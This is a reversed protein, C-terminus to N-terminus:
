VTFNDLPRTKLYVRGFAPFVHIKPKRPFLQPRFMGVVMDRVEFAEADDKEDKEDNANKAILPDVIVPVGM